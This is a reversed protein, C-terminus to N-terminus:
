SMFMGRLGKGFGTREPLSLRTALFLFNVSAPVCGVTWKKPHILQYPANRSLDMYFLSSLTLAAAVCWQSLRATTIIRDNDMM